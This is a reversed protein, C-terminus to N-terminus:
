YMELSEKAKQIEQEAQAKKLMEYKAEVRALEKFKPGGFVSDKYTIAIKYAFLASDFENEAIYIDSLVLYVGSLPENM